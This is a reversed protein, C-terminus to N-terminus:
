TQVGYELQKTGKFSPIRLELPSESGIHFVGMGLKSIGMGLHSIGEGHLTAAKRELRSNGTKTFIKKEPVLKELKLEIYSSRGIGFFLIDL